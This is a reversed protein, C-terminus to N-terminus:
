LSRNRLWFAWFFASEEKVFSAPSEGAPSSKRPMQAEIHSGHAILMLMGQSATLLRSNEVGILIQNEVINGLSKYV